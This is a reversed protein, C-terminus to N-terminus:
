VMNFEVVEVIYSIQGATGVNAYLQVAAKQLELKLFALIKIIIFVLFYMICAWCHTRQTKLKITHINHIDALLFGNM